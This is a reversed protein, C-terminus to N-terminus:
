IAGFACTAALGVINMGLRVAGSTFPTGNASPGATGAITPLTGNTAGGTTGTVLPATASASGTGYSVPVKREAQM